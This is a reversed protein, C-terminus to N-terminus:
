KTAARIIEIADRNSVGLGLQGAAQIYRAKRAISDFGTRKRRAEIEELAVVDLAVPDASFYLAGHHWTFEPHFNPGLAYQGLLGDVVHLVAKDRLEPLACIEPVTSACVAPDHVFRRANDVSGIALNLLCGSLGVDSHDCLISVNILKTIQQTVLKALHSEGSIEEARGFLLDGWILKGAFPSRYRVTPDFGIGPIVGTVRVGNTSDNLPYGADLLDGQYKDWVIIHQEPVGAARLGAVIASVVDKRVSFLPGGRAVIKVGVVDNSGGFHRWIDAPKSKGTLAQM